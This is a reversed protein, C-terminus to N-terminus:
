TIKNKNMVTAEGTIVPKGSANEVIVTELVAVNKIIDVEKVTIMAKYLIDTFMPRKFTLSQSLYVTGEGPFKTGLIRSFIAGGLFGHIIPKKFITTAAFEHDLHLPNHDGTIDAFKVVDKQSYSFELEYKQGSSIM